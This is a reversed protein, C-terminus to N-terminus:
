VGKDQGASEPDRDGRDLARSLGAFAIEENFLMFGIEFCRGCGGSGLRSGSDRGNGRNLGGGVRVLVLLGGEATPM